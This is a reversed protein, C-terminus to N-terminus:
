LTGIGEYIIEFIGMQKIRVGCKNNECDIIYDKGKKLKRRKIPINIGFIKKHTQILIM